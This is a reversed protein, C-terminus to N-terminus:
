GGLITLNHKECFKIADEESDFVDICYGDTGPIQIAYDSTSYYDEKTLLVERNSRGYIRFLM